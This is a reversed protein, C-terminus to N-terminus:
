DQYYIRKVRTLHRDIVEYPITKRACRYSPLRYNTWGFIIAQDGERCDIDTVDIMCVYNAYYGATKTDM